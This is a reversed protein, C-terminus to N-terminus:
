KRPVAGDAEGVADLLLPWKPRTEIDASKISRNERLQQREERGWWVCKTRTADRRGGAESGQMGHATRRQECYDSLYQVFCVSM